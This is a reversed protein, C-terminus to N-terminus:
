IGLFCKNYYVELSVDVKYQGMLMQNLSESNLYNNASKQNKIQKSVDFFQYSHNFTIEGREILQIVSRLLLFRKFNEDLEAYYHMNQKQHFDSSQLCKVILKAKDTHCTITKDSYHNLLLYIPSM